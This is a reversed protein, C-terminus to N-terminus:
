AQFCNLSAMCLLSCSFPVKKEMMKLCKEQEKNETQSSRPLMIFFYIKKKFLLMWVIFYSYRNQASTAGEKPNRTEDQLFEHSLGSWRCLSRLFIEHLSRVLLM